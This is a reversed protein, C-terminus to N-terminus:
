FNYPILEIPDYFNIPPSYFLEHFCKMSIRSKFKKPLGLCSMEHSAVLFCVFCVQFLISFSRQNTFYHLFIILILWHFEIAKLTTKVWSFLQTRNEFKMPNLKKLMELMKKHFYEKLWLIGNFQKKTREIRLVTKKQFGDM